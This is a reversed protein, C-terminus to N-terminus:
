RLGGKGFYNALFHANLAPDFYHKRKIWIFGDGKSIVAVDIPGGVTDEEASTVRRKFSTLNVLSEAMAALEDKPLAALTEVIPEVFKRRRFAVSQDSFERSLNQGLEALKARLSNTEEDSLKGKLSDLILDPYGDVLLTSLYKRTESEFDPDIGEMFRNVMERQAFPIISADSESSSTLGIRTANTQVYRMRNAVIAQCQYAYLAPFVDKEGFGAIVVGSSNDVFIRKGIVIGCFREMQEIDIPLKEFVEALLERILNRYTAVVEAVAEDPFSVLSEHKELEEVYKQIIERVIGPVSVEDIEGKAVILQAIEDRVSKRLQTLQFGLYDKIFQEQLGAPFLLNERHFFNLFNKAYDELYDFHSAGLESRYMKIITEWPVGMLNADGFVMVGVPNYKSLTFVKNATNYIKQGGSNRLTVASDAALAVANRNLIAVEATM